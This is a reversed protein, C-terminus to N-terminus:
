PQNVGTKTVIELITIKYGSFTIISEEKEGGSSLNTSKPSETLVDLFTMKGGAQRSNAEGSSTKPCGTPLCM